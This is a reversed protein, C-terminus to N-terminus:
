CLFKRTHHYEVEINSQELGSITKGQIEIDTYNIKVSLEMERNKKNTLKESIAKKLQHGLKIHASNMFKYAKFIQEVQKELDCYILGKEKGAAIILNLNDKSPAIMEEDYLWRKLNGINPNAENIHYKEAISSLFYSLKRETKIDRALMSLTERWVKLDNAAREVEENNQLLNMYNIQDRKFKFIRLGINLDKFKLKRVSINGKDNEFEGLVNSQIPLFMFCGDDFRIINCPVSYQFQKSDNNKIKYREYQFNNFEILGDEEALHDHKKDIINEDVELFSEIEKSFDAPHNLKLNPSLDVNIPIKDTFYGSLIRKNLYHYTLEGECPWCLITLEPIFHKTVADLLYKNSHERYPFGSFLIKETDFDALNIKNYESPIFIEDERKISIPSCFVNAGHYNKTNSYYTNTLEALTNNIQNLLEHNTIYGKNEDWAKAFEFILSSVPKSLSHSNKAAYLAPYLYQYFAAKLNEFGELGRIKQHIYRISQDLHFGEPERQIKITITQKAYRKCAKWLNEDLFNEKEEVTSILKQIKAKNWNIRFADKFIGNKPNFLQHYFSLDSIREISRNSVFIVPIKKELFRKVTDPYLEVQSIDNIVVTKLTKPLKYEVGPYTDELHELRSETESYDEIIENFICDIDESISGKRKISDSLSILKAKLKNSETIGALSNIWDIFETVKNEYDHDFGAKFEKLDQKVIINENPSFTSRLSQNYIKNSDIDTNIEGTQGRGAILLVKSMLLQDNIIVGEHPELIKSIPTRKEKAKKKRNIYHNHTNIARNQAVSKVASIVSEECEVILSKEPDPEFQFLLKGDQKGKYRGISGYISYLKDVSLEIEPKNESYIYDENFFNILLAISLWVSASKKDPFSFFLPLCEKGTNNVVHDRYKLGIYASAKIIPSFEKDGPTLHYEKDKLLDNM